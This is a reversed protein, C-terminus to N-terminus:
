MSSRQLRITPRTATSFDDTIRSIGELYKSGTAGTGRVEIQPLQEFLLLLVTRQSDTGHWCISM